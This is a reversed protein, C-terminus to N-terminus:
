RTAGGGPPDSEDDLTGLFVRIETRLDLLLCHFAHATEARVREVELQMEDVAQQRASAAVAGPDPPPLSAAVTERALHRRAGEITFKREYLLHKVALVAEVDKRSYLRQNTKSKQPRISPFETEWFRLVYQKVGALRAVEGIKFFLKDPLEPRNGV